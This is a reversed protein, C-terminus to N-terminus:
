QAGARKKKDADATGNSRLNGWPDRKISQDPLKKM